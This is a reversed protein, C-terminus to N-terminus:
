LNLLGLEKQAKKSLKAAIIAHADSIYNKLTDDDVGGNANCQVWKGRALYPAPIFAEQECLVEFAIDSCKFSIKEQPDAKPGMSFCAFMKGGVKWVTVGGWQVVHSTAPLSACYENFVTKNM